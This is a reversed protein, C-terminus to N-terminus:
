TMVPLRRLGRFALGRRWRLSAAPAALRLNPFRTFLKTLAIEGELRALPAGVCFHVGTGLALHKNPERALDLTDPDAFRSADRNASGLVLLVLDGGRITAAGITVDERAVRPSAFDAPSTYRLLEEIASEVLNPSSIFLQRQKPNELLVLTGTAILNVTTEYGAVLLLMVMGLLEEESLKDGAEEARILASLLDDSNTTRHKEILTRFYRLFQWASPLSKLMDPLTGSTSAALRNTWGAFKRREGKPIGLLDAIITMPIPLAYDRVLDMQGKALGADLLADCLTEIRGRLEAVLRPTFAKGVLARLRTHDPPDLVLIHQYYPRMWRPTWPIKALYVNSFRQPDKIVSLVDDYRTILWMKPLWLAMRTRLVPAESRLRAYFPHPNAKFRPSALDPVKITV